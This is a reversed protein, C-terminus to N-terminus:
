FTTDVSYCNRLVKNTQRQGINNVIEYYISLWLLTKLMQLLNLIFVM